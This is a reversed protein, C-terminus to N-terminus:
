ADIGQEMAQEDAAQAEKQGASVNVMGLLLGGIVFFAIVALIANQSSGTFDAVIAFM